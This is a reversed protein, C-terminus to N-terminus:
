GCNPQEKLNGAAYVQNAYSLISNVLDENISIPLPPMQSMVGPMESMSNIIGTINNRTRCFLEINNRMQFTSINAAIKNFLRANEGLLHQTAGDIVPAVECSFQNNHNVHNMMSSYVAANDPQIPHIDARASCDVMKEKRDKIKKGAYYEEQKRRKGNEKTMWRCRMAVDRVTKDPLSSAIKIYKLITPENAYKILGRKLEATEEYSWDAALGIGHKLGPVPDLFINSPSNSPPIMLSANNMMTGPNNTLIMGAMSNIGSMNNTGIMRPASNVAESQFSDVQQGCFSQLVGGHYFNTNGDAAM